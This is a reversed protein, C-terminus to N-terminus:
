CGRCIGTFSSVEPRARRRLPPKRPGGQRASTIRQSAGAYPPRVVRARPAAQDVSGYSVAPPPPNPRLPPTNAANGIGSPDSLARPNAPGFPVGSIASNGAGASGAPPTLQAFASAPAALVFSVLFVFAPNRSMSCGRLPICAVTMHRARERADLGDAAPGGTLIAM